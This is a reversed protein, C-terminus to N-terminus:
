SAKPFQEVIKNVTLQVARAYDKPDNPIESVGIGRWVLSDSKAKIVDVM